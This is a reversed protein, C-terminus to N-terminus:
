SCSQMEVMVGLYSNVPLEQHGVESHIRQLCFPSEGPHSVFNKCTWSLMKNQYTFYEQKEEGTEQVWLLDAITLCTFLQFLRMSFCHETDEGKSYVADNTETGQISSRGQTIKMVKCEAKKIQHICICIVTASMIPFVLHDKSWWFRWQNWYAIQNLPSYLIQALWNWM